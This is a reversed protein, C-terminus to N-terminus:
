SLAIGVVSLFIGLYLMIPNITVPTAYQGQRLSRQIWKWQTVWWCDDPDIFEGTPNVSLALIVVGGMALLKGVSDLMM